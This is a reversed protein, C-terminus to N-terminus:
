YLFIFIRVYNYIKNLIIAKQIRLNIYKERMLTILAANSLQLQKVHKFSEEKYLILTM